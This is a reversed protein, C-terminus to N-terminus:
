NDQIKSVSMKLRFKVHQPVPVFDENKKKKKKTSAM